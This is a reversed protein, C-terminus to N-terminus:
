GQLSEKGNRAKLVTDRLIVDAQPGAIRESPVQQVVQFVNPPLACTPRTASPPDDGQLKELLPRESVHRLLIVSCPALSPNKRARPAPPPGAPTRCCAGPNRSLDMVESFWQQLPDPVGKAARIGPPCSLALQEM